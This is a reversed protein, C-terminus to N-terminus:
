SILKRIISLSPTFPSGQDIGPKLIMGLSKAQSVTLNIGERSDTLTLRYPMM